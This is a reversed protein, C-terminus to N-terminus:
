KTERSPLTLGRERIRARMEEHHRKFSSGEWIQFTPGGGVFTANSSIGAHKALDAPLMIRGQGDFTLQRM